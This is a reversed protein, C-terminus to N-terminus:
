ITGTFLLVGGAEWIQCSPWVNSKIKSIYRQQASIKLINKIHYNLTERNMVETANLFYIHQFNVLSNQESKFSNTAPLYTM